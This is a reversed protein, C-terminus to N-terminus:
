NRRILVFKKKRNLQIPKKVKAGVSEAFEEIKKQQEALVEKQANLLASRQAKIRDRQAQLEEASLKDALAELRDLQQQIDEEISKLAIRYQASLDSLAKTVEIPTEYGSGEVSYRNGELRMVFSRGNTKLDISKPLNSSKSLSILLETLKKNAEIKSRTDVANEVAKQALRLENLADPRNWSISNTNEVARDLALLSCIPSTTACWRMSM